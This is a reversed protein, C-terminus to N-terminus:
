GTDIDERHPPDLRAGEVAERVQDPSLGPFTTAVLVMAHEPSQAMEVLRAIQTKDYAADMGHGGNIVHGWSAVGGDPSLIIWQYLAPPRGSGGGGLIERLGGARRPYM